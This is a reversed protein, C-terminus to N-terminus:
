KSIYKFSCYKIAINEKLYKKEFYTQVEIAMPFNSNYLDDTMKELQFDNRKKIVNLTFEYLETNDTKLHIIGGPKLIKKYIELFGPSTLRRRPRNEFPDPFPIWIESVVPTTFFCDICEIYTRLFFVNTLNKELALSAGKHIRHGKIDIGMFNKDRHLDALALTYEGKGCGVELVLDQDKAFVSPSYTTNVEFPPPFKVPVELVNPLDGIARYKKTKGMRGM